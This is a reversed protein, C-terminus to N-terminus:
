ISAVIDDFIPNIFYTTLGGLGLNAAVDDSVRLLDGVLQDWISLSESFRPYNRLIIHKIIDLDHDSITIGQADLTRLAHLLDKCWHPYHLYWFAFEQSESAGPALLKLTLPVLSMVRQEDQLIARDEASAASVDIREFADRTINQNVRQLARKWDAQSTVNYSGTSTIKFPPQAHGEIFGESVMRNLQFIAAPSDFPDLKYPADAHRPDLSYEIHQILKVCIDRGAEWFAAANRALQPVQMSKVAAFARAYGAEQLDTSITPTARLAIDPLVLEGTALADFAGIWIRLPKAREFPKLAMYSTPALNPVVLWDQWDWPAIDNPPPWAQPVPLASPQNAVVRTAAMAPQGDPQILREELGQQITTYYYLGHAPVNPGAGGNAASLYFTPMRAELTM